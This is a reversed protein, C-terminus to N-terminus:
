EIKFIQSELEKCKKSNKFIYAPYADPYLENKKNYLELVTQEYM